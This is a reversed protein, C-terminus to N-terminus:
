RHALFDMDFLVIGIISSVISFVLIKSESFIQLLEYLIVKDVFLVTVFWLPGCYALAYIWEFLLSFNGVVFFYLVKVIIACVFSPILLKTLLKLYFEKRSINFDSCFGSVVFFAAMYYPAYLPRLEYLSHIAGSSVGIQDCCLPIHGLMVFLILIGKAIDIYALRNNM